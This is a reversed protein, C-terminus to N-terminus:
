THRPLWHLLAWGCLACGYHSRSHTTSHATRCLPAYGSQVNMGVVVHTAVVYACECSQTNNTTHQSHEAATLALRLQVGCVVIHRGSPGHIGCSAVATTVMGTCTECTLMRPHVHGIRHCEHRPLHLICAVSKLLGVHMCGVHM